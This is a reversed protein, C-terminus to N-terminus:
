VDEVFCLPRITAYEIEFQVLYINVINVMEQIVENMYNKMLFNESLRQLIVNKLVFLPRIKDSRKQEQIFISKKSIMTM